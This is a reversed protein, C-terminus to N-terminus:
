AGTPYAAFKGNSDRGTYTNGITNVGSFITSLVANSGAWYAVVILILSLIFLYSVTRNLTDM